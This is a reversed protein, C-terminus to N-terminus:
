IASEHRSEKAIKIFTKVLQPDKRLSSPFEVGSAVDVGSPNLKQIRKALNQINLGGALIWPRAPPVFTDWDIAPSHSAKPQDFLPFIKDNLISTFELEGPDSVAFFLTHASLQSLASKAGRGHLQLTRIGTADCIHNIETLTEEVFIAVPVAGYEAAAVCMEKGIPVSVQRKSVPSFIVGIYDAGHKACLAADEPDTLGCIKVLM